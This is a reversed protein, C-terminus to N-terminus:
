RGRATARAAPSVARAPSASGPVPAFRLTRGLDRRLTLAADLLYNQRVRWPGRDGQQPFQEQARRIYGSSLPLLPQPRLPGDPVPVVSAAGRRDMEGLVKCVLRSTLDARLTWSANVYGVAVAFNPVGTLMAGQWVFREHLDVPEGDVTLPIGGFPVMRLGTATVVVDAELVRGSALRIGEPVFRDVHDTVMEVRGRRIARFFDGDPAVCFRQEWPDYAPTFHTEVLTPDVAKATLGLLLRRALGPWRTCFAYVAQQRVINKGRIVRHALGAPLVRRIRDALADEAPVAGIWSPSRQLVTVHGATGALSPALTVATAGSGIIVVRRGTVDLDDPWFQPVVVTGAFDSQGPFDPQHARDYDYYGACAYLFSCTMTSARTSGDAATKQLTLTWCAREGSWAAGVVSTQFRIHRDIGHERATDAVYRRIQEGEVISGRGSWPRFPYSLTFFDSDSRIGPYRFLDWTGGIADRAELVAYTRGPCETELRYAAGIGSLGAGVVVVDVHPGAPM